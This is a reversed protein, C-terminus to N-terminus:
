TSRRVVLRMPLSRAASSTWGSVGQRAECTLVAVGLLVILPGTNPDTALGSYLQGMGQGIVWDALALSIGAGVALRRPWGGILAVVGILGELVTLATVLRNGSSRIWHAVSYDWGALWSPARPALASPSGALADASAQSPLTDLVMGGLWVLAWAGLVWRRMPLDSQGDSPWAAAALVAYLLASGPAGSIIAAHGSALGGLGQGLYWVGLAWVISAGLAPRATRRVLLGLGIALQISGFVAAAGAHHALVLGSVWGMPQAVFGPQGAANADLVLEAFYRSFMEPQLQLAGDLIWVVGLVLQVHRRTVHM